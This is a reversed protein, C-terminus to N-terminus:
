QPKWEKTLPRARLLIMNRFDPKEKMNAERMNRSRRTETRDWYSRQNALCCIGQRQFKRQNALHYIIEKRKPTPPQSTPAEKSTEKRKSTPPQSIDADDSSGADSLNLETPEGEEAKEADPEESIDSRKSETGGESIYDGSPGGQQIDKEQIGPEQRDQGPAEDEKRINEATSINDRERINEATTINGESENDEDDSGSVPEPGVGPPLNKGDGMDVKHTPKRLLKLDKKNLGFKLIDIYYKHWDKMPQTPCKQPVLERRCVWYLRTRLNAAVFAPTQCYEKFKAKM